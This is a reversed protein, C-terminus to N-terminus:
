QFKEQLAAGIVKGPGSEQAIVAFRLNNPDTGPKLKIEVDQEFSKGKDLKGIKTFSEVVATHVLHKGSNEGRLVQSEAHDLLVAGYINASHTSRTGDVEIKAHLSDPNKPDISASVIHVPVMTTTAATVLAQKVQQPDNFHLIVTGDVIAQPTYPEAQGLAHEYENQRDTISSSSYPDKWGDHNWYDVHESMVILQAGSIPQGADIRKLWADAPPCTSCGESTFLEIVVPVKAEADPTACKAALSMGVFLIGLFRATKMRDGLARLLGLSQAGNCGLVRAVKL